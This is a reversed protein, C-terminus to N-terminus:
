VNRKITISTPLISVAASTSGQAWDTIKKSELSVIGGKSDTVKKYGKRKVDSFHLVLLTDGYCPLYYPLTIGKDKIGQVWIRTGKKTPTIPTTTM